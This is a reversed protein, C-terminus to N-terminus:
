HSIFIVMDTNDTILDCYSKKIHVPVKLLDIISQLRWVNRLIAKIQVLLNMVTSNTVLFM